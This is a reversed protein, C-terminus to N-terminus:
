LGEEVSLGLETLVPTVDRDPSFRRTSQVAVDKPSGEGTM